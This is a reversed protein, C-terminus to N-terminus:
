EPQCRVGLWTQDLYVINQELSFTGCKEFNRMIELLPRCRFLAFSFMGLKKFSIKITKFAIAIPRNAAGSSPGSPRRQSLPDVLGDYIPRSPLIQWVLPKTPLPLSIWFQSEAFIM